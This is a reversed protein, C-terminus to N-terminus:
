AVSPGELATLLGPGSEHQDRVKTAEDSVTRTSGSAFPLGEALAGWRNAGLSSTDVRTRPVSLSSPPGSSLRSGNPRSVSGAILASGFSGPGAAQQRPPIPSATPIATPTSRKGAIRAEDEIRHRAVTPTFWDEDMDGFKESLVSELNEVHFDVEPRYTVGLDYQNGFLDLVPFDFQEMVEASLNESPVLGELGFDLGVLGQEM